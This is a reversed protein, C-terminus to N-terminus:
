KLLVKTHVWLILLCIFKKELLGIKFTLVDKVLLGILTKRRNKLLIECKWIIDYWM